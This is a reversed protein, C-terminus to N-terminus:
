GATWLGGGWGMLAPVISRVEQQFTESLRWCRGYVGEHCGCCWLSVGSTSVAEFRSQSSKGVPKTQFLGAGPSGIGEPLPCCFWGTSARLRFVVMLGSSFVLMGGTGNWARFGGACFGPWSGSPCFQILLMLRMLRMLRLGPPFSIVTLMLLRSSPMAQMIAPARMRRM